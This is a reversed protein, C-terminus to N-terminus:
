TKSKSTIEFMIVPNDINFSIEFMIVPNDINFSIEFM